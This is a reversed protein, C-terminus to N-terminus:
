VLEIMKGFGRERKLHKKFNIERNKIICFGSNEVNGVGYTNVGQLTHRFSQVGVAKGAECRLKRSSLDEHCAGRSAWGTM